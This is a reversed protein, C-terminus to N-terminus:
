IIWIKEEWVQTEMDFTGGGLDYILSYCEDDVNNKFFYSLAAANPENLLKLVTFGAAKAAALTAARQSTNFYAPVTIVTKDVTGIKAEVDNKIKQLIITTIEKPTKKFVKNKDQIVIIPNNFDDEVKFSFYQLNNQLNIEQYTKGIFRKIEYIGNEPLNKAM